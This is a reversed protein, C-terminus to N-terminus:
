HSRLSFNVLFVGEASEEQDTQTLAAPVAYSRPTAVPLVPRTESACVEQAADRDTRDSTSRGPGNFM